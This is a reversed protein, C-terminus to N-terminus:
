QIDAVRPKGRRRDGHFPVRHRDLCARRRQPRLLRGRTPMLSRGACIMSRPTSSAIHGSSGLEPVIPHVGGRPQAGYDTMDKVRAVADESGIKLRLEREANAVVIHAATRTDSATTAIISSHIGLDHLQTGSGPKDAIDSVLDTLETAVAAVSQTVDKNRVCGRADGQDLGAAAGFGVQLLGKVPQKRPVVDIPVPVAAATVSTIV